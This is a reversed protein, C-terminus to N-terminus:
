PRAGLTRRLDDLAWQAARARIGNRDGFLLYRKAQPESDPGAISVIVTGVPAGTASGPGAEGTVSVAFTSGTRARAGSAMANACEESVATHSALLRPDVGLLDIKMQDSYALFGGVFYASSGAVSTIRSGLLGATCSEAVSLTAGHAGLQQGVVNELTAGDRSYIRDGLLEEIAPGVAALLADAAADTEGRARLHIQIDGAGALITTVPNAYPKYVPSILQDLDSEGMGAVRYFLTRIVQPPLNRRLRPLCDGTFMAKLEHPPGPLLM